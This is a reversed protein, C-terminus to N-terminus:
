VAKFKDYSSPHLFYFIQLMGVDKLALLKNVLTDIDITNKIGNLSKQFLKIKREFLATTKHPPTYYVHYPHSL